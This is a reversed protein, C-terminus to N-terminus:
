LLVNLTSLLKKITIQVRVFNGIFAFSSLLPDHCWLCTLSCSWSLCVIETMRLVGLSFVHFVFKFLDITVGYVGHGPCAVSLKLLNRYCIKSLSALVSFSQITLWLLFWIASYGDVQCWCRLSLVLFSSLNCARVKRVIM